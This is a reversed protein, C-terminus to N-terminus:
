KKGEAAAKCREFRDKVQDNVHGGIVGRVKDQNEWKMIRLDYCFGGDVSAWRWELADKVQAPGLMEELQQTAVSWKDKTAVSDRAQNYKAELDKNGKSQCGVLLLALVLRQMVAM